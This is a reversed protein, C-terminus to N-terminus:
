GWIDECLEVMIEHFWELDVNEWFCLLLTGCRNMTIEDVGRVFPRETLQEGSVSTRLSDTVPGIDTYM